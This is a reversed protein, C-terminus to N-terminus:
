DGPEIPTPRPFPTLSPTSTATATPRPTPTDSPTPTASPRPTRTATATATPTRTPTPTRTDTPTLTQTLSPTPTPTGTPTRTPTSTASATPTPTETPTATATDTPTLTIQPTRTAFETAEPSPEIEPGAIRIVRVALQSTIPLLRVRLVGDADDALTVNEEGIVSGFTTDWLTVRYLGPPMNPFSLSFNLPELASDEAVLQWTYDRHQVWAVAIGLSRDALALARTPTRYQAIEIYGLQLWDQGLNDLIVTHEGANVPVTVLIDRSAPSLDVRAVEHGDITIALIAPANPSVDQIYVRFETGVPPAIVFTQPRSREANFQGYLYATLRNTAPMAGDATLRYIMNPPSDGMFDRNLNDVRLAGYALPTEPVLGVAVPQLSASNWPIDRSFLALPNFLSYLNQQDVYSAWWWPMAGGAAGSLAAAWITNHIHVGSPDNEVPAYWRNLSFENLLIPKPTYAAAASIASFVGAVQDAPDDAPLNQYYSVQAFDLSEWIAPEFHNTGATILHDYPDIERLYGIMDQLWPHAQTPAYGLIGDLEDVVEWAFIHPSYGWRAVIYRLRQHLLARAPDNSFVDSSIELPGGNAQNYPHTTWDDRTDPLAVDPPIPVPPDAYLAFAQHWILVVQLYVGREQAMQLITDLRWAATQARTYNGAPGPWDLGIFWPVDINLRAYNAGAAHLQDLWREYGYISGSDPWSWALNEGVPFYATGNDFAFYHGSVGVYGPRDSPVVDFAGNQVARVGATDRAEIIYSWQGIQNPAFRVRWGPSGAPVLNEAACDAACIDHYPRMYFGPVALTQGDPAMFTATISIQAPDYPNSYIRPLSFSIELLDYLAVPEAMMGPPTPTPQQAWSGALTPVILVGAVLLLIALVFFAYERHTHSLM